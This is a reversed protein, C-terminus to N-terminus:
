RSHCTQSLAMNEMGIAPLFVFNNVLYIRTYHLIIWAIFIHVVDKAL